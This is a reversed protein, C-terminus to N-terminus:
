VLDQLIDQRLQCRRFKHHVLRASSFQADLLASTTVSKGYGVQDAASVFKSQLVANLVDLQPLIAEETEMEEFM